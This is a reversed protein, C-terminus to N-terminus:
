IAKLFRRGIFYFMMMAVIGLVGYSIYQWWPTFIPSMDGMVIFAAWYKPDQYEPDVSDLYHLKAQQLAVDKRKGQKLQRYFEAMIIASSQDNVAWLTSVVSKAGAYFFGRALSLVGEGEAIEGEATSCASLVVLENNSELDYLERLTLKQSPDDIDSGLALFSNDSDDPFTVGHGAFHLIRKSQIANVLSAKDYSIDVEGLSSSISNVEESAYPLHYLNISDGRYGRVSAYIDNPDQDFQPAIIGIGESDVQKNVLEQWLSASLQYSITYNKELFSTSDTSDKLMAGFSINSTTADPIIVVSAEDKHWSISHWIKNQIVSKESSIDLQYTFALKNSNYHSILYDIHIDIDHIELKETSAKTEASQAFVIAKSKDLQEWLEVHDNRELSSIIGLEYFRRYYKSLYLQDKQILNAFSFENFFSELWDHNLFEPEPCSNEVLLGDISKQLVELFKVNVKVNPDNLWIEELRKFFDEARSSLSDCKGLKRLLDLQYSRISLDDIFNRDGSSTLEKNIISLAEEKDLFDVKAQIASFSNYNGGYKEYISLWYQLRKENGEYCAIEALNEIVRHFHDKWKDLLEPDEFLKGEYYSFAELAYEKALGYENTTILMDSQRGLSTYYSPNRNERSAIEKEFIILENYAAAANHYQGLLDNILGKKTLGIKKYSNFQLKLPDNELYYLSSDVHKLAQNYQYDLQALTSYRLHVDAKRNYHYDAQVNQENLDNILSDLQYLIYLKDDLSQTPNQLGARRRFIDYYWDKKDYKTMIVLASDLLSSRLSHSNKIAPDSYKVVIRIIEASDTAWQARASLSTLLFTFFLVKNM